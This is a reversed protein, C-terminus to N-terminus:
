ASPCTRRRPARSRSSCSISRRGRGRGAQAHQDRAHARLEAHPDRLAPDGRRAHAAVPRAGAHQRFRPQPRDGCRGRRLAPRRAHLRGRRAPRRDPPQAAAAGGPPRAPRHHRSLAHGRLVEERGVGPGPQAHAQVRRGGDRAHPGTGARHAHRHHSAAVAALQPLRRGHPARGARLGARRPQRHDPTHHQRARVPDAGREPVAQAAHGGARPARGHAAARHGRRHGRPLRGSRAPSAFAMVQRLDDFAFVQGAITTRYLM